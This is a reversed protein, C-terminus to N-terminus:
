RLFYIEDLYNTLKITDQEPWVFSKEQQEKEHVRAVQMDTLSRKVADYDLTWAFSKLDHRLAPV